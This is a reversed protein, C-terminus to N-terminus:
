ILNNNVSNFRYKKGDVIVAQTSHQPQAYVPTVDKKEVIEAEPIIFSEPSHGLLPVAVQYLAAVQTSRESHQYGQNRFQCFSDESDEITGELQQAEPRSMKVNSYLGEANDVIESKINEMARQNIRHALQDINEQRYAGRYSPFSSKSKLAIKKVDKNRAQIQVQFQEYAEHGGIVTDGFSNAMGDDMLFREANRLEQAEVFEVQVADNYSYTHQKLPNWQRLAVQCRKDIMSEEERHQSLALQCRKDLLLKAEEEKLKEQDILKKHEVPDLRWYAHKSRPQGIRCFLKHISLNTRIANELKKKKSSLHPYKKSLYDLINELRMKGDSSNQLAEIVLSKYTPTKSFDKKSSLKPKVLNEALTASRTDEEASFHGFGSHNQNEENITNYEVVQDGKVVTNDLQLHQGTTVVDDTMPNLFVCSHLLSCSDCTRCNKVLLSCHRSKYLYRDGEKEILFSTSQSAPVNKSELEDEYFAGTCSSYKESDRLEFLFSSCVAIIRSFEHPCLLKIGLEEVCTEKLIHNYGYIRKIHLDGDKLALILREKSTFFEKSVSQPNYVELFRDSASSRTECTLSNEECLPRIFQFVEDLPDSDSGIGADTNFYYRDGADPFVTETTVTEEVVQTDGDQVQVYEGPLFTEMNSFIQFIYHM